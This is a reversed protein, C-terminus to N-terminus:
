DADRDADRWSTDKRDYSTKKVHVQTGRTSTPLRIKMELELSRITTGVDKVRKTM